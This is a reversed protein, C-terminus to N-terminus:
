VDLSYQNNKIQNFFFNMMMPDDIQDFDKFFKWLSDCISIQDIFIIKAVNSQIYQLLYFYSEAEKIDKCDKIKILLNNIHYLLRPLKSIILEESTNVM